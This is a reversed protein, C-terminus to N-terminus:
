RQPGPKWKRYLNRECHQRRTSEFQQLQHCSQASNATTSGELWVQVTSKEFNATYVTNCTDIFITQSSKAGVTENGAFTVAVPNWTANPCLKPQNYSVDAVFSSRLVRDKM